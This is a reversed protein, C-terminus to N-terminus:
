VVGASKIAMSETNDVIQEAWKREPINRAYLEEIDRLSRGKTEPLLFYSIVFIIINCAAFIFASKAGLNAGDPRIIRPIAFTLVISTVNNWFNAWAMTPERLQIRPIEVPLLYISLSLM